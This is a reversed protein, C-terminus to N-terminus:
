NNNALDQLQFATGIDSGLYAYIYDLWDIDPRTNLRTIKWYEMDETTIDELLDEQENSDITDVSTDSYNSESPEYDSSNDKNIFTHNNLTWPNQRYQQYKLQSKSLTDIEEDSCLDIVETDFNPTINFEQIEEKITPEYELEETDYNLTTAIDLYKDPPSFFTNSDQDHTTDTIPLTSLLQKREKIKMSTYRQWRTSAEHLRVRPLLRLFYYTIIKYKKLKDPDRDNIEYIMDFVANKWLYKNRLRNNNVPYARRIHALLQRNDRPTLRTYRNYKSHYEHGRMPQLLQYNILGIKWHQFGQFHEYPQGTRIKDKIRPHLKNYWTAKVSKM